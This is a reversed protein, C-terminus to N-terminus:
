ATPRVKRERGILALGGLGFSLLLATEPEPVPLVSSLTGSVVIGDNAMTRGGAGPYDDATFSSLASDLGMRLAAEDGAPTGGGPRDNSTASATFSFTLTVLQAVGTGVGSITANGSQNFAVNPSTGQNATNTNSLAGLGLSGATLSGDGGLTGSMAGLTVTADGNGDSVITMAGVRGFSLAVDWLEGSVANVQFSITFSATLSRTVDVGGAGGMDAGVVAAYRTSFTTAGSSLVSAASTNVSGETGVDDFFNPTNAPNLVISLGSISAAAAPLPGLALALVLALARLGQSRPTREM